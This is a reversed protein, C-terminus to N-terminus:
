FATSWLLIPTTPGFYASAINFEYFEMAEESDMNDRRMLIEMIKDSSYVLLLQGQTVTAGVIAAELGDLQVPGTGEDNEEHYQTIREFLRARVENTLLPEIM